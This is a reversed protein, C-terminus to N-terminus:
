VDFEALLPICEVIMNENRLANQARVRLGTWSTGALQSLRGLQSAVQGLASHGGPDLSGTPMTTLLMELQKMHSKIQPHFADMSGSLQPALSATSHVNDM